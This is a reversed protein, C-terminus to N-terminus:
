EAIFRLDSIDIALIKLKPLLSRNNIMEKWLRNKTSDLSITENSVRIM